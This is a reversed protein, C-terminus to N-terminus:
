GNAIEERTVYYLQCRQNEGLEGWGPASRDASRTEVVLGGAFMRRDAVRPGLVVGTVLKLGRVLIDGEPLSVTLYWRDERQSYDFLLVYDQDDITTRQEYLSGEPDTRILIL